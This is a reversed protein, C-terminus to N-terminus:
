HSHGAHAAEAGLEGLREVLKLRTAGTVVVRDGPRIGSRIETFLGDSGGLSVDQRRYGHQDFLYVFYHGFDEVIAEKPLVLSERSGSLIYIEAYVGAPYDASYPLSFYIPILRSGSEVSQGVSILRGGLDVVSRFPESASTRFNASVVQSLDARYEPSVEARLLVERNKSVTFLPEGIAVFQGESVLMETITGAVPSAVRLGDEEMGARLNEYRLEATRFAAESEQLDTIPILREDYLKQNRQYLSQAQNYAIEAQMVAERYNDRTIGESSLAMVKEDLGVPTGPLMRKAGFLVFGESKATVTVRDGQMPVIEGIAPIAKSFPRTTAPATTIGAAAMAEPSLEILGEHSHDHDESAHDHGEHSLDHVEEGHDAIDQESRNEQSRNGGCSVFGAYLLCLLLLKIKM